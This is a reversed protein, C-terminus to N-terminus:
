PKQARASSLLKIELHRQWFLCYGIAAADWVHDPFGRLREAGAINHSVFHQVQRKTAQGAHMIIRKWEANKYIYVPVGLTRGTIRLNEVLWAMDKYTKGVRRGQETFDEVSVMQVGSIRILDAYQDALSDIRDRVTLGSAKTTQWVGFSGLSAKGTHTDGQIIAYGTNATGPDIGLITLM